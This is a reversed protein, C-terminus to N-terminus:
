YLLKTYVEKTKEFVSKETFLSLFRERVFSSFEKMKGTRIIYSIREAYAEATLDDVILFDDGITSRNFGQPSAIPIIGFSMAETVANSQGERVEISPFIYFHKDYLYKQLEKHSCGSILTYSGPLLYEEMAKRVKELYEKQGNGVMTLTINVFQRQLLATTEIILLPNKAPQIRGFFLLNIKDNPKEHLFEPYFGDEVCNPYHFVPTDCM